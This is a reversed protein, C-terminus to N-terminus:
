MVFIAETVAETKSRNRRKVEHKGISDERNKKGRRQMGKERTEDEKM